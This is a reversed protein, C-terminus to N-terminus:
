PTESAGATLTWGGDSPRASVGMLQAARQITEGRDDLGIVGTFPRNAVEPAATVPVGLNRSLDAAVAGITTAHYALRGDRWGTISETPRQVVQPAEIGQRHLAMGPRLTIRSGGPDYEVLGEAVAVDLTSREAVVNFVTGLDRLMVGGARVEFPDAPNHVVTFLAEGRELSATRVDGRDLVIRSGGNLDIRSGDDLEIVRREGAATEIAYTGERPLTGIAIVGALAAAIGTGLFFRRNLRRAPAQRPQPATRQPPALGEWDQEALAAEEYASAHAPDAELWDTFASWEDTNADRLRIVWGIAETDIDDRRDTM